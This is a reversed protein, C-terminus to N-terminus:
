VEVRRRLKSWIWRFPATVSAWFQKMAHWAFAPMGAVPLFLLLYALLNPVSRVCHAIRGQGEARPRPAWIRSWWARSTAWGLIGTVIGILYPIQIYTPIGPILQGDIEKQSSDDRVHIEAASTIVEGTIHGIVDEMAPKISSIVGGEEAVASIVVRGQGERTAAISMPARRGALADLFDGFTQKGIADDFGGVEIQQWLWNKGGPQRPTEAHLLVLNVDNQRAASLVEELDRSMEPGSQPKFFLKGNDIRGVVVATQGRIGGFARNLDVPDIKDVLAAKTAPDFRPAASLVKSGGPELAITRIGSKNLPRSLYSLTEDFLGRDALDVSLNPKLKLALAQGGTVARTVPYAGHDTVLHLDADKPLKDLHQRNAFVSDESLYLTLKTDGADPALATAVRKLEEATGATFTEGERNVFTWHGEPTAHAALAGKPADTLDGLHKAAKGAAGLNSDAHRGAKGGAEGAEKLIHTLWNASAPPALCLAIFIAALAFCRFRLM